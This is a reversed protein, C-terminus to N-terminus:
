VTANSADKWVSGNWWIPKTLTSDWMSYGAQTSQLTPRSGTAAYTPGSVAYALQCGAGVGSATNLASTGFGTVENDMATVNVCNYLSIGDANGTMVRNGRISIDSANAENVVIGGTRVSTSAPSVTTCYNRITNGTININGLYATANGANVVIPGGHQPTSNTRGQHDAIVNGIIDISRGDYECYIGAWRPGAISNGSITCNVAGLTRICAFAGPSPDDTLYDYIVNGVISVTAQPTTSGGAYNGVIAIGDKIPQYITNGVITVNGNRASAGSSQNVLIGNAKAQWLTNGSVVYNYLLETTGDHVVIQTGGGLIKNGICEIDNGMLSLVSYSVNFSADCVIRNGRITTKVSTNSPITQGGIDTFSILIDSARGNEVVNVVTRYTQFPHGECGTWVDSTSEAYQALTTNSVYIAKSDFIGLDNLDKFTNGRSIVTTAEPFYLASVNRTSISAKNGDFTIGECRFYTSATSRGVMATDVSASLLKLTTLGPVGLMTLSAPATLAYATTANIAFTVGSFDLPLGAAAAATMANQIAVTDDTVGDGVAGFDKVSVMDRLKDNVSRPVAGTGSQTFIDTTADVGVTAVPLGSADFSLFKSARASAAPVQASMAADSAPFKLSRASEEGLQQALMTAKDLAEELSEAPLRDNPLLDTEQTAAINRRITVTVAAAPAVLMTVTGGAENGAGAVTYNTTLVQVTETTGSRLIVQLDAAELFYFTVAFATTSGNGTYSVKSTTSSVTM